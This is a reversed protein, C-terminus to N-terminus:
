ITNIRMMHIEDHLSGDTFRIAAPLTAVARFGLKEYLGRARNNEAVVDLETQRVGRREAEGLLERLLATGIGLGWFKQKLAIVISSRHAVKWKSNFVIQCNGAVEGDVDALLCLTQPSAALSEIYAIEGEKTPFPGQPTWLIYETESAIARLYDILAEADGARPVRMTCTRGDHLLITKEPYTM